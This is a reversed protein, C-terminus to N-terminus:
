RSLAGLSSGMEMPFGRDFKKHARDRIQEKLETAELLLFRLMVEEL